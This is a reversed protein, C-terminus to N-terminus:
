VSIPYGGYKFAAERMANYNELPVYSTVSNSSGLCYGGGLAVERLRQKVEEEVEGPTGRTLTYSLDINGILCLRHGITKKLYAIDMAKPEIPQLANCGFGIIDELVEYVKGDTHYIFPLGKERCRSAMRGYWPFLYQRLYRPAIMLGEAYAIDDSAWFAGVSDFGTLTEFLQYQMAGVKDFMRAVLGPDEVLAICFTELGMLEWIASFIKGGIAVVKMRPPLYTKVEQFMSFDLDQVSPWPFSQFEELTTIVGLKEEAWSRTQCGEQFLSYKANALRAKEKLVAEGPKFVGQVLPVYDYGATAWFEVEDELDRIPRGLFAEQVDQDVHIEALPVRDPEGELMLTKRFREFDPDSTRGMGTM